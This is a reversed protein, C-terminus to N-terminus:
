DPVVATVVAGIASYAHGMWGITDNIKVFKAVEGDTFLYEKTGDCNESNIEEDSDAPTRVEFNSSGNGVVTIEHGIPVSALSPLTIFDNADNTPAAVNIKTAHPLITNGAGEADDPTVTQCLDRTDGALLISGTTAALLKAVDAYGAFVRGPGDINYLKSATADWWLRDWAAWATTNDAAIREYIGTRNVAGVAGAAIDAVAIGVIGGAVVVAGSSVASGTDNTWNIIDVPFQKQNKM